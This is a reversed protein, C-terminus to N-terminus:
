APAASSPLSKPAFMASILFDASTATDPVDRELATRIVVVARGRAVTPVEKFTVSPAVLPLPCYAHDMAPARGAPRCNLRVVAVSLPTGVCYPDHGTVTLAASAVSEVLTAVCNSVTDTQGVATRMEPAESGPAITLRGAVPAM